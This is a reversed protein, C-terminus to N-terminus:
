GAGPGSVGRHRDATGANPHQPDPTPLLATTLRHRGPGLERAPQGPLAVDATTGDSRHFPQPRTAEPEFADYWPAKFWIANVLVLRTMFDLAGDPM